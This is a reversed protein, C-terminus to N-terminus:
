TRAMELEQLRAAIQQDTGIAGLRQSSTFERILEEVDERVALQNAPSLRDIFVVGDLHDTEHQVARAYLGDMEYSFAQGDLGYASVVIKEPRRVPAWIGPFSLCGEQAEASGSKRSIVPNIFVKEEGDDSPEGKVNMVFLRYPLDVQNAALGIGEHSYMLEFMEAVIQKLERDVRKLARSKHRLTPHPYKIIQM